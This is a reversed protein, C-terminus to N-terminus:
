NDGEPRRSMTWLEAASKGLLMASNLDTPSLGRTTASRLRSSWREILGASVARWDRQLNRSFGRLEPPGTNQVAAVWEDLERGRRERVLRLFHQALQRASALEASREYLKKLLLQEDDDLDSPRRLLLWSLTRPGPLGADAPRPPEATRWRSLRLCHRPSHRLPQHKRWM